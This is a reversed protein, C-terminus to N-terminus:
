SESSSRPQMLCGPPRPGRRSPLDRLGPFMAGPGEIPGEVKPVTVTIQQPLLLALALIMGIM